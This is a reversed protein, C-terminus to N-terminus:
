ERREGAECAPQNNCIDEFPKKPNGTYVHSWTKEIQRSLKCEDILNQGWRSAQYYMDEDGMKLMDFYMYGYQGYRDFNEKSLMITRTVIDHCKHVFATYETIFKKDIAPYLDVWYWEPLDEFIPFGEMRPMPMM